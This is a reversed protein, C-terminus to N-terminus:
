RRSRAVALTARTAMAKFSAVVSVGPEVDLRGLSEVTVPSPITASGDVDVGVLAVAERRDVAVVTAPFRDLGEGPLWGCPSKRRRSTGGM